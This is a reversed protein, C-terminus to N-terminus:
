FFILQKKELLNMGGMLTRRVSFSIIKEIGFEQLTESLTIESPAEFYFSDPIDELQADFYSFPSPQYIGKFEADEM